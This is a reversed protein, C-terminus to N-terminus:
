RRCNRSSMGGMQYRPVPAQEAAADIGAFIGDRRQTALQALLEIQLRRLRAVEDAEVEVQRGYSESAIKASVVLHRDRERCEVAQRQALSSLHAREGPVLSQGQRSDRGVVAERQKQVVM